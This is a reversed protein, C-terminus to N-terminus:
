TTSMFFNEMDFYFDVAQLCGNVILFLQYLSSNVTKQLHIGLQPLLKFSVVAIMATDIQTKYRVQVLDFCTSSVTALLSNTTSMDWWHFARIHSPSYDIVSRTILYRM